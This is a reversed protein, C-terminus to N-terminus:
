PTPSSCPRRPMAGPASRPSRISKAVYYAGIAGSFLHIRSAPAFWVDTPSKRRFLRAGFTAFKLLLLAGFVEMAVKGPRIHDVRLPPVHLNPLALHPATLHPLQLGNGSGTGPATGPTAPVGDPPTEHLHHQEAAIIELLFLAGIGFVAPHEKAVHAITELIARGSHSHEQMRATYTTHALSLAKGVDTSAMSGLREVIGAM